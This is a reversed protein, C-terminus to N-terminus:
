TRDFMGKDVRIRTWLYHTGEEGLEPREPAGLQALVRVMIM